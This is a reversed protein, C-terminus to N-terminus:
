AVTFPTAGTVDIEKLKNKKMCLEGKGKFVATGSLTGSIGLGEYPGSTVTGSLTFGGSPSGTVAIAAQSNGHGHGWKVILSGEAVAGESALSACTVGATTKLHAVYKGAEGASGTCGSLTGKVSVNQVKAVEEIGPSLKAVGVDSSCTTGTGETAGASAAVLGGYGVAALAVVILRLVFRQV